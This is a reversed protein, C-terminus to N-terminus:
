GNIIVTNSNIPLCVSCMQPIWYFYRLLPALPFVIRLFPVLQKCRNVSTSSVHFSVYFAAKPAVYQFYCDEKGADVHVKYEMAVAPLNDFWMVSSDTSQAWILSINVLSLFLLTAGVSGM